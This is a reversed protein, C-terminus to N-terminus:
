PDPFNKNNLRYSNIGKIDQIEKALSASEQSKPASRPMTIISIEM